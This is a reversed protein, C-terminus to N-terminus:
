CCLPDGAKQQRDPIWSLSDWLPRCVFFHHSFTARHQLTLFFSLHMGKGIIQSDEIRLMEAPILVDKVEELLDSSLSVMSINDRPVLPLSLHDYSAAYLLGQFAIGGSGSTQHSLDVIVCLLFCVFYHYLITFFATTRKPVVRARYM